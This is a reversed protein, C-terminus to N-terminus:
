RKCRKQMCKWQFINYLAAIGVLCYIFRTLGSMKGFMSALIDMDAVGMFGWNLGGIILLIATVVDLTKM